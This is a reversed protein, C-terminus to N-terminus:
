RAPTPSPQPTPSRHEGSVATPEAAGDFQLTSEKPKDTWGDQTVSKSVVSFKGNKLTKSLEQESDAEIQREQNTTPMALYYWCAGGLFIGTLGCLVPEAGVDYSKKMKFQGERGDETKISADYSMRISSCSVLCFATSLSGLLVCTKKM